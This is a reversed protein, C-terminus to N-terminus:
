LISRLPAALSFITCKSNFAHFKACKYLIGQQNNKSISGLWCRGPHCHRGNELIVTLKKLHQCRQLQIYYILIIPTQIYLKGALSAMPSMCLKINITNKKLSFVMVSAFPQSFLCMSSSLRKIFTLKYLLIRYIYLSELSTQYKM